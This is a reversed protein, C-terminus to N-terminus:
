HSLERDAVEVDGGVGILDGDVPTDHRVTGGAVFRDGGAEATTAPAASAFTATLAILAILLPKLTM